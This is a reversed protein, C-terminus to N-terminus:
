ARKRKARQSAANPKLKKTKPQDPKAPDYYVAPMAGKAVVYMLYGINV